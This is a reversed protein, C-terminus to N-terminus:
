KRYFELAKPNTYHRKFDLNRIYLGDLTKARSLAVYFQGYEFVNHMDVCIVDLTCGQSKHISIAWALRLPLQKYSMVIDDGIMHDLTHPTIIQVYGNAFLVEPYGEIFKTVVGRSGNVLPMENVLFMVQSGIKLSIEAPLRISNQVIEKDCRKHWTYDATYKFEEGSLQNYYEMNLSDVKANTSYLMTPIILNDSPYSIERSKLIDYCEDDIEGMRVKNLVRIFQGDTQRMITHLEIVEDICIKWLKSEFCFNDSGVTPLQLFDGSFILQIGGFRVCNNRLERAMRELKEFLEISLMSVEDIILLEMNRIVAKKLGSM